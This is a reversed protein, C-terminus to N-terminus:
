LVDDYLHGSTNAELPIFVIPDPHDTYLRRYHLTKIRVTNKLDGDPHLPNDSSRTHTFQGTPKELVEARGGRFIRIESDLEVKFSRNGTLICQVDWV